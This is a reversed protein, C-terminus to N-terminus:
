PQLESTSESKDVVDNDVTGQDDRYSELSITIRTQHKAYSFHEPHARILEYWRQGNPPKPKLPGIASLTSMGDRAKLHTLLADISAATRARIEEPDNTPIEVIGKKRRGPPTAIIKKIDSPSVLRIVVDNSVTEVSFRDTFTTIIDILTPCTRPRSIYTGITALTSVGSREQLHKVIAEVREQVVSLGKAKPSKGKTAKSSFARFM